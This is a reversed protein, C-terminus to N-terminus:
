AFFGNSNSWSSMVIEFASPTLTNNRQWLAKLEHDGMEEVLIDLFIGDSERNEVLIMLHSSALKAAASADGTDRVDISSSHLGQRQRPPSAAATLMIKRRTGRAGRYWSSERLTDADPLEIRHVEDAVRDIIQDVLALLEDSGDLASQYLVFRM